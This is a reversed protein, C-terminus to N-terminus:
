SMSGAVSPIDRKSNTFLQDNTRDSATVGRKKPHKSQFIFFYIYKKNQADAFHKFM